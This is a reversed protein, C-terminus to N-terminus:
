SKPKIMQQEVVAEKMAICGNSKPVSNSRARIVPKIGNESLFKFNDKSDYAGDGLVRKAHVGNENARNM